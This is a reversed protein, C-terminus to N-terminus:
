SRVDSIGERVRKDGYPTWEPCHLEVSMGFSPILIPLEHLTDNRISSICHLLSCSCGSSLLKAWM